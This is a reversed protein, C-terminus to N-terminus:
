SGSVLRLYARQREEPTKQAATVAAVDSAKPQAGLGAAGDKYAGQIRNLMDRAQMQDHMLIEIDGNGKIKAGKYLRRAPGTLKTTDALWGRQEGVGYCRPCDPDPDKFAHYGFGGAIDPLTPQRLRRAEDCAQGYELDDRWQYGHDEGHCYRCNVWRYGVIDNPNALEIERLEQIRETLSPIAAKSAAVDRLQRIRDAIDPEAALRSSEVQITHFTTNPGVNYAQRYAASQNGLEVFLTAFREQKDTLMLLLTGRGAWLDLAM